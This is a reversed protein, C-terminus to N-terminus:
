TLRAELYDPQQQVALRFEAIADELNGSRGYALGLNLHAEAYTPKLRM